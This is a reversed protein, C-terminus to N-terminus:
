EIAILEIEFILTANPGILDGSGRSGYALDSPIYLEWKSGAPMLQLAEIWGRIVGNVPFTAPEGHKFSSDFETGDILTGRYHTRVRDTAKPRPGSGPQIVKYQLGSPLAQVGPKLRNAALFADGDTKNKEGVGKMREEYRSAAERQFAQITEQIQNEALIPTKGSLSDEMGKQILKLDIDMMQRKLNRGITFGIGYSAKDKLTSLEPREEAKAPTQKEDGGAGASLALVGIGFALTWMSKM